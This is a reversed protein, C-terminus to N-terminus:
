AAGGKAAQLDHVKQELESIRKAMWRVRGLAEDDDNEVCELLEEMEAWNRRAQNRQQLLDAVTARLNSASSRLAAGDRELARVHVDTAQFIAVLTECLYGCSDARQEPDDGDEEIDFLAGYAGARLNEFHSHPHGCDDDCESRVFFNAANQETWEILGWDTLASDAEASAGDSGANPMLVDADFYVCAAGCSELPHKITARCADQDAKEVM